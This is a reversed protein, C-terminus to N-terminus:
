RTWALLSIIGRQADLILEQREGDPRIVYIESEPRGRAIGIIKSYVLTRGDPAFQFSWVDADLQLRNNGDVDAIFLRGPQGDNRGEIYAIQRGDPSFSFAIWSNGSSIRKRDRGDTGTVYLSLNDPEDTLYAVLDGRSSFDITKAGAPGMSWPSMNVDRDIRVPRNDVPDILRLEGVQDGWNLQDYIVVFKKDPSVSIRATWATEFTYVRQTPGGSVAVSVLEDNDHFYINAGDPSVLPYVWDYYDALSIIREINGSDIELVVLETFLLEDDIQTALIRDNDPFFGGFVFTPATFLEQGNQDIVHLNVEDRREDYSTYVFRNGDPSFGFSLFEVTPGLAFRDVLLSPGGEISYIALEWDQGRQEFLALWRGNPSLYRHGAYPDAVLWLGARNRAIELNDQGDPKIVALTTPSDYLDEQIVYLVVGPGGGLIRPLFNYALIIAAVVCIFVALIGGGITLTRSSVPLNALKGSQASTPPMSPATSAEASAPQEAALAHGCVGCFRAGEPLEGNCNPCVM